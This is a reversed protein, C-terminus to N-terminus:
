MDYLHFTSLQLNGASTTGLGRSDAKRSRVTTGIWTDLNVDVLGEAVVSNRTLKIM